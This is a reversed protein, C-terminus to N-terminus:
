FMLTPYILCFIEGKRRVLVFFSLGNTVKNKQFILNRQLFCLLEAARNAHWVNFATGLQTNIDILCKMFQNSDNSLKLNSFPGINLICVLTFRLFPATNQLHISLHHDIVFNFSGASATMSIEFISNRYKCNCNSMLSTVDRQTVVFIRRGDASIAYWKYWNSFGIQM